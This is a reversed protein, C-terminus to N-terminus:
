TFTSLIRRMEQMIWEPSSRSRVLEMRDLAEKWTLTGLLSDAKDFAEIIEAEDLSELLFPYDEGLYHVADDTDRSTIVVAGLAAATFGKTFPKAIQWTRRRRAPPRVCYHMNFDCLADFTDGIKSDRAYDLVRVRKKVEGPLYVNASHGLYGARVKDLRRCRRGLLRPDTHHTLHMVQGGSAEGGCNDLMRQLMQCGVRSAGIHVDAFKSFSGSIDADVYDICVARANRSLKYMGEEGFMSATGKLLIVICDNFAKCTERIAADNRLPRQSVVSFEFADGLHQRCMESLQDCRMIKSGAGTQGKRHLFVVKTKRTIDM